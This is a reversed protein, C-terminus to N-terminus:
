ENTNINSLRFMSTSSGFTVFIGHHSFSRAVDLDIVRSSSSRTLGLRLGLGYDSKLNKLHIHQDNQWVNGIDFFAAAGLRVTLIEIPSYFRYELNALASKTGALAFFSHGRLGNGGGLFVQYNSNQRWAFDTIAHVVLVHTEFPQYYLAAESIHRIREDRGNHRWWILNEIGGVFIRQSPKALFQALFMPRYGEYTAGFAKSSRGITLRLAAGLTLDEATGAADLYREVDYQIIAGSLGVLPFAITESPPILNNYPSSQDYPSYDNKEYNAGAIIGLRKSRGFSYQGEFGFQERNDKYRFYEKGGSFLRPRSRFHSFSSAFSFPVSLSYQPRGLTIALGNEFTFDYITLGLALRSGALRNDYYLLHYGNEDNGVQGLIDIMKGWGLLNQETLDVGTEYKGGAVDAYVSIKTTWLDATEVILDIGDTGDPNATVNVEAIYGGLRLNRESELVKELDLKDGVKFLLEKRIVYERTMIHVSNAWRYYFPAHNNSAILDDFINKRVVQISKIEKGAYPQLNAMNTRASGQSSLILVLLLTLRFKM